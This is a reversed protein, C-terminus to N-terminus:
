GNSLAEGVASLGGKERSLEVLRDRATPIHQLFETKGKVESLYGYAGLAQMLRQMACQNLLRRFGDHDAAPDLERKLSFYYDILGERQDPAFDTYPDYVLSALDYEPIGWRLGQYDILSTGGDVVMVNTSQFDRHVLARPLEALEHRLDALSPEDRLFDVIGADLFRAVYQNLFYDQEWEYLAEDFSLELEPLDSPAESEFIGHLRM